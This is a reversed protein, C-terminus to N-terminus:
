LSLENPLFFQDTNTKSILSAQDMEKFALFREKLAEAEPSQFYVKKLNPMAEIIKRDIDRNFFPISYGIIVISTTNQCAVKCLELLKNTEQRGEWAFSLSPFYRKENAWVHYWEIAHIAPKIKEDEPRLIPYLKNMHDHFAATGNIKFISFREDVNDRNERTLKTMLNLMSMNNQIRFDNSFKSYALEFQSDYNWSIINISKPLNHAFGNIISAFFSDYRIDVDRVSQEFYFFVCMVAKLRDLAEFDQRIFLKKAYTDISAQIPFYKPGNETYETREIANLIKEIEKILSVKGENQKSTLDGVNIQELANRFNRLREPIENVMPVAFKSAGAGFLYTVKNM